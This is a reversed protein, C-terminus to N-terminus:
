FRPHFFRLISQPSDSRKSLLPRRSPTERRGQPATVLQSCRAIGSGRDESVQLLGGSSRRPCSLFSIFSSSGGPLLLFLSNKMSWNGTMLKQGLPVGKGPYGLRPQPLLTRVLGAM